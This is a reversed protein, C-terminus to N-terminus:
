PMMWVFATLLCLIFRKLSQLPNFLSHCCIQQELLITCYGRASREAETNTKQEWYGVMIWLVGEVAAEDLRRWCGLLRGGRGPWGLLRERGKLTPLFLSHVTHGMFTLWWILLYVNLWRSYIQLLPDTIDFVCVCVIKFREQQVACYIARRFFENDM